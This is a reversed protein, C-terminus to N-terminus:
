KFYRSTQAFITLALANLESLDHMRENINNSAHTYRTKLTFTVKGLLVLRDCPRNQM